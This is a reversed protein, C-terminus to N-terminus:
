GRESAERAGLRLRGALWRLVLPFVSLMTLAVLLRPTIISSVGARQIEALSQLSTAVSLAILSAPLIGIQSVWWFDVVRIRTVGMAWNVMFSPILPFLRLSLLYWIGDRELSERIVRARGGLRQEVAESFCYRSFLFTVTSGATTGLNVIVLGQWFGFLWGYLLSFPVVVPFSLAAACFCATLALAYTTAPSTSHFQRITSEYEVLVSLLDWRGCVLLVALLSAVGATALARRLLRTM